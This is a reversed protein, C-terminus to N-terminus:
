EYVLNSDAKTLAVIVSERMERRRAYRLMRAMNIRTSGILNHVFRQYEIGDMLMLRNKEVFLDVLLKEITAYHGSVPGETVLPRIVITRDRIMFQKETESKGPNAFVNYNEDRLFEFLSMVDEIDVYLLSVFRSPLHHLYGQIQVTSWCSFPLLPYKKELLSVLKTLPSTDLKFSQDITSYWGYGANHIVGKGKLEYLYQRLTQDKFKLSRGALYRRVAKVTFYKKGNLFDSMSSRIDFTKM